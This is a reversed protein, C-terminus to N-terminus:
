IYLSEFSSSLWILQWIFSVFSRAVNWRPTWDSWCRHFSYGPLPYQKQCGTRAYVVFVLRLSRSVLLCFFQLQVDSSFGSALLQSLQNIISWPSCKPSASSFVRSQAASPLHCPRWSLHSYNRVNASIFGLCPCLSHSYRLSNAQCIYLFSNEDIPYTDPSSSAGQARM